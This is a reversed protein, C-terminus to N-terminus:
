FVNVVQADGSAAATTSHWQRDKRAMASQMVCSYGLLLRRCGCLTLWLRRRRRRVDVFTDADARDDRRATHCPVCM